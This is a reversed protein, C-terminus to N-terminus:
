IRRARGGCRLFEFDGVGVVAEVGGEIEGGAVEDELVGVGEEGGEIGRLTKPAEAKPGEGGETGDRGVAGGAVPDGEDGEDAEGDEGAQAAWRVLGLGAGYVAGAEIENSEMAVSGVKVVGVLTGSPKM